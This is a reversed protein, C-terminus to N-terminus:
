GYSGRWAGLPSLHKDESGPNQSSDRSGPGRSFRSVILFMPGDPETRDPVIVFKGPLGNVAVTPPTVPLEKERSGPCLRGTTTANRGGNEEARYESSISM